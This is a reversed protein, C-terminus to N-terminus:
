KRLYFERDIANNVNFSCGYCSLKPIKQEFYPPASIFCLNWWPCISSPFTEFSAWFLGFSCFFVLKFQKVYSTLLLASEARNQDSLNQAGSSSMMFKLTPWRWGIKKSPLQCALKQLYALCAKFNHYPIRAEASHIIWYASYGLKYCFLLSPFCISWRPCIACGDLSNIHLVVM